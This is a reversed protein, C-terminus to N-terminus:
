LRSHPFLPDLTSWQTFWVSIVTYVVCFDCHLGCLFCRRSVASVLSVLRCCWPRSPDSQKRRQLLLKMVFYMKRERQIPRWSATPLYISLRCSDATIKLTQLQRSLRYSNKCESVTKVTHLHRSLRFSDQCYLVKQIPWPKHQKPGQKNEAETSM